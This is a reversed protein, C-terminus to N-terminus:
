HKSSFITKTNESSYRYLESFCLKRILNGLKKLIDLFYLFFNQLNELIVIPTQLILTEIRTEGIGPSERPVIEVYGSVPSFIIACCDETMATGDVLHM